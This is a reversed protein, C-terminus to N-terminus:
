EPRVLPFLYEYYKKRYIDHEKMTKKYKTKIPIQIELSVM